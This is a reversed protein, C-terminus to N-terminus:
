LPSQLTLGDFAPIVHAPLQRAIDNYDIDIHMNTLVARRPQVRAIWELTQEVHAHSPHTTWRLADVIWLDLNRLADFSAEPILGVDPTYAVDGLRYGVSRIEGHELDFTQVPIDGGPGDVTWQHGHPPILCADMIAPYGGSADFIYGFRRLLSDQTAMDMWAPIRQRHHLFFARVDDIGHTQDAHDHTYLVGDLHTVGASQCQVRFDPSTDIMVSTAAEGEGRRVLLACRTRRNKPEAPDCDGWNGDARPV